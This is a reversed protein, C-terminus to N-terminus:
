LDMEQLAMANAVHRKQRACAVDLHHARQHGQQMRVAREGERIYAERVNEEEVLEIEETRRADSDREVLATRLRDGDGRLSTRCCPM